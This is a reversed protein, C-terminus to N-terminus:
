DETLLLTCSQSMILAQEIVCIALKDRNKYWSARPGVLIDVFYLPFSTGTIIKYQVFQLECHKLIM